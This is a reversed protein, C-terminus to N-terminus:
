GPRSSNLEVQGTICNYEASHVFCTPVRRRDFPLTLYNSGSLYVYQGVPPHYAAVPLSEQTFIKGCRDMTITPEPRPQEFFTLHREPSVRALIMRQNATGLQMINLIEELCTKQGSRFPSIMTGTELSVIKEFFQNGAAAIQMLQEGSDSSCVVRFMLHPYTGPSTVNPIVVWSAGNWYKAYHGEQTYNADEDTKIYLNNAAHVADNCCAAWYATGATLSVPAAFTFRIWSYGTAPLDANAFTDSTGLFANPSGANDSYIRAFVNGTPANNKRLRFYVYEVDCDAGPTFKQAPYRATALAFNLTGAGPGYNAYFGDLNQYTLWKLTSFWGSCHIEAYMENKSTKENLETRPWAHLALFTDRLGEAFFEDLNDEHLVIERIGYELQSALNEAYDTELQDALKNDPSIFSYSVKVKNFLAGLAIAFRVGEFNIEIRDVYGWWVMVGFGDSIEVPCRLLGATELLRESRGQLHLHAKDPGGFASWSLTIPSIRLGHNVPASFDRAQFNIQFTM